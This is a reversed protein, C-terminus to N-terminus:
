VSGRTSHEFVIPCVCVCVCVSEGTIFGYIRKPGPNIYLAACIVSLLQCSLVAVTPDNVRMQKHHTDFERGNLKTFTCLVTSGVFVM